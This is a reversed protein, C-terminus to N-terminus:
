NVVFEAILSLLILPEPSQQYILIYGYPDWGGPFTIRDDTDRDSSDMGTISLLEKDTSDRGIYFDGSNYYYATVENIRKERGLITAGDLPVSLPMTQLQATFPLGAQVTSASTITIQGSAVVKSTQIAGDGLICATEGELHDLGTLTTTATSDYTIGCDVYYADDVDTGFDRDSFYEIYRVDSGDITRKVSVWVVDEEDGPIIAVSEFEGDTILRSWSTIIEQREYVFLAIQGDDRVCWVISNPVRQIDANTIGDGTIHEALITMEPAVYSDSEWNYALERLKKKGRQFFLVSDGVLIAQLNASGMNSHEEAKYNSPTLAEDSGGSLTWEAGRTGILLKDKGILWEITNVQRSSLTFLLADDDNAGALFNYYDSSVSAWITDPQSDTGGFTLRDEFFTVTKPWGRYNSWSGESWRHTADTSALTKLVVATASTSNAVSTIEVIGIHDIDSIRFYVQCPEAADGSATLICRYDAEDTTEEGDAVINRDDNSQFTYVTEWTTSDHAAGITYNRQVELTGTWTGLTTLYWEVGKAISGCHVWSTNETQDDTYNDSLTEEYSGTELPQIIKFLAGTISKSVDESGSPMHGATAGIMFLPDTSTLTVTGTTASPTITWTTDTNERQFPGNEIGLEELTWIADAYRSLKRPEYDPCTILLVDASQKYQLKFLDATLYPTDIEYTEEDYLTAVEAPTLVDSFISVEDIGSAWFKESATDGTNRQSGIRVEEAGNQMATYNDDNYATSAVAAGDIYLIIGDAAATEDAPASYTCAFQHWGVDIASDAVSYVEIGSYTEMGSGSNYLTSVQSSSLEIDFITINDLKDKWFRQPVSGVEIASIHVDSTHNEMAVYTGVTRTDYAEDRVSVNDVYLNMGDLSETADYTTVIHHWGDSLKTDYYLKFYALASYDYIGFFLHGNPECLLVWEWTADDFKSMIVQQTGDHVYYVWASISFASDDAGDGFSLADNDPVTVYVSGGMDYCDNIKGTTSITDTDVSCVGDHDTTVDDTHTDAADDNLLYQAIVNGSLDMSSDVLNLQLKKESSLSLRWESTAQSNRWKSVLVQLDGYDTVFGWTVISFASDDSNDTFSFDDHDAMYIDYQADLDFCNDVIGTASVTSADVSLTGNHTAGDDDYVVTGIMENLLYHAKLNNLASLDDTGVWSNIPAGDKYFRAYQNGLEIVTTEDTSSVFPLLRIKSNDKSEAVYKTGPRKEAPGQPLPIINEMTLCGSHYKSLDERSRMLPSLEGASFSNYAKYGKNQPYAISCIFLIIAIKKM